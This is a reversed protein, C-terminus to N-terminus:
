TTTSHENIRNPSCMATWRKQRQPKDRILWNRRAARHSYPIDTIYHTPRYRCQFILYFLRFAIHHSNSVNQLYLNHSLLVDTKLRLGLIRSTWYSRRWINFFINPIKTSRSQQAPTNLKYFVDPGQFQLPYAIEFPQHCILGCHAVFLSFPLRLDVTAFTRFRSYSFHGESFIITRPFIILNM